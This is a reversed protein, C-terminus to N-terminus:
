SLVAATIENEKQIQQLNASIQDSDLDLRNGISPFNSDSNFQLETPVYRQGNFLKVVADIADRQYAQNADFEFQM